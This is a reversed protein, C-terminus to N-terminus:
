GIQQRLPHLQYDCVDVGDIRIIGRDTDRFRPVLSVVTSKGSGTPGVIGVMQGPAIRFSIDCLVPVDADYGFAVNEFEIEGSFPPPQIADPREPVVYDAELITRIREFGVSVQAISNTLVAADRVPQFFKALYALFVTLTGVTTVGALVLVS